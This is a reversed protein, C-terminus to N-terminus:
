IIFNYNQNSPFLMKNHVILMHTYIFFQFSKCLKYTFKALDNFLLVM